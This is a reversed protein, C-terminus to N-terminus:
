GRRQCDSTQNRNQLKSKELIDYLYVQRLPKKLRRENLVISRLNVWTTAFIQENRKIASYYEIRHIYWQKHMKCNFSKPTTELEPCNYFLATIFM